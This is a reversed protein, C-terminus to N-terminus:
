RRRALVEGHVLILVGDPHAAWDRWGASVDELEDRTALGGAVAQEAFASRTARGAWSDGWWARDEPTAIALFRELPLTAWLVVLALYYGGIFKGYTSLIGLGEATVTAAVAAFVALPAVWMVYATVKLM